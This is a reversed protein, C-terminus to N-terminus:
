RYAQSKDAVPGLLAATVGFRQLCQPEIGQELFVDILTLPPGEAVKPTGSIPILRQVLTASRAMPEYYTFPEKWLLSENAPFGPRLRYVFFHEIDAPNWANLRLPNASWLEWAQLGIAPGWAYANAWNPTEIFLATKADSEFVTCHVKAPPLSRSPLVVPLAFILDTRNM